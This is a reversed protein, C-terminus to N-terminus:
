AVHGERSYFYKPFQNRVDYAEFDDNGKRRLLPPINRPPDMVHSPTEDCSSSREGRLFNHVTCYDRSRCSCTLFSVSASACFVSPMKAHELLFIDTTTSQRTDVKAQIHPYLRMLTTTLKFAEDGFSCLTFSNRSSTRTSNLLKQFFIGLLHSPLHELMETKVM